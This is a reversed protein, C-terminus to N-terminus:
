NSTFDCETVIAKKDTASLLPKWARGTEKKYVRGITGYHVGYNEGLEKMSAGGANLAAVIAKRESPSLQHQLAHGTVKKFAYEIAAITVGYKAAQDTMTAKKALIAAAINERETPPIKMTLLNYWTLLLKGLIYFSRKTYEDMRGRGPATRAM